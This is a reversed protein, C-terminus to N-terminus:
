DEEELFWYKNNKDPEKRKSKKDTWKIKKKAFGIAKGKAYDTAKDKAYDKAKNKVVSDAGISDAMDGVFGLGVLRFISGIFGM